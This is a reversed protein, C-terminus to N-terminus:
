NLRVLHCLFQKRQQVSCSQELIECKNSRENRLCARSQVMTPHLQRVQDLLNFKSFYIKMLFPYFIHGLFICGHGWYISYARNRVTHGFFGIKQGGLLDSIYSPFNSFYAYSFIFTFLGQLRMVDNRHRYSGQVVNRCSVSMSGVIKNEHSIQLLLLM